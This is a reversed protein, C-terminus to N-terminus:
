HMKKKFNKQKKYIKKISKKLIKKFNKKLPNKINKLKM